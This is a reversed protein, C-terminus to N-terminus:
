KKRLEQIMPQITEDWVDQSLPGVLKYRIFGRKDVVFTEPAGTVGFAIAAKSAPDDGILTYPDGFRALWAPGAQRNEERWDIGHLPVLKQEKIKMLFPHEVRCAVCWSGFVNVLSVDGALDSHKFGRDRGEIAALNFPPVEQDILVSPLFRPDKTLGIGLYVAMIAFAVLPLIFILRKM